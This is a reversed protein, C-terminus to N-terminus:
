EKQVLIAVLVSIAGSALASVLPTNRALWSREPVFLQDGSELPLDAIRTSRTIETKVVNDGRYLRVRDTRGHTEAGGALALAEAVTMTEDVFVLGPKQVAGLVTVRREFRVDISVWDRLFVRYAKTISDQLAQTSLGVVPRPGVRAFTVIGSAPVHYEGSMDEERFIRVVIRDGPKLRMIQPGGENSQAVVGPQDALLLLTLLLLRIM